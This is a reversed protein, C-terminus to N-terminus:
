KGILMKRTASFDRATLTYFYIGSAVPEGFANRGDWYAARSRDTYYGARQYGLDLQRVLAGNIDYISIRVDTDNALRYPIWTEPNFPNPYNPLLVTEKPTLVALVQELFLIGRQSTADTLDLEQAHALWQEVDATTLMALTQPDSSPAAANGFAGAVLVLDLINVIGDGNVDASLDTGEDGLVSAVLVLDLINVVDDRNVDQPIPPLEAFASVTQKEKIGTVSVTVTNTGLNPGLTLISEARGNNDTTATTVSLTGGGSSVSFIVQVSPLPEGSRDRVEVVLPKALAEGIVGKQDFGTIIWFALPIRIGEASFTQQEQIKTVSVTVTNTGPHPGLTLSNEAQGNANTTATTASLMGDGAVVAFSVTVGESPADYQDRVEVIFAEALMEGTSGSQNNGSVILLVTPTPPPLSAEANFVVTRSIGEVSVTVTNTGPDSGLSLTSAANGNADTMEMESSLSGGGVSVAFTVTVGETPADYQDRVEVVFSNALTEGTLGSQDGGSVISLHTPTPLPLVAEADFVETRSIGEVSVEVSNTGPDSGLTLTSQALGNADTTATTVNLSGGGENVSYTVTVGQMTGDYQDRVEVVFPNTLAEGTLGSQDGGSVISLITPMPPPLAAKANFVATQSIGEVSVTVMNTGPNDGLTLTSETRGDANTLAIEPQLIGDGATVTFTVSVGESVSGNEDRVEVVFPNALAEGTLGSQNDGSVISLVTPMPPPLVAEANFVETRSIGEVSVEVSNRGPDGGLTLTSTARGDVNTTVHEVTSQKNLRGEGITVTFTVQVGQVPNDYWNRVEVVLPHALESGLTGQQADGSVKVLKRTSEAVDWFEVTGDTSGSALLPSVPSFSVSWISSSGEFSAIKEQTVVDWLNVTGDLEGTALLAGDPSFSISRITSRGVFSAIEEFNVVDWLKATGDFSATAFLAGDPPSFSVSTIGRPHASFSTVDERTAVEWLKVAGSLRTAGGSVLLTGDPPSFSVSVVSPAPLAGIEERTAVDWLKVTGDSRGAFSLQMQGGRSLAPSSGSAILSGNPSFSVDLVPYNHKELTAITEQATVDWLKVTGDFSGSALLNSNPSFSVSTVSDTHGRLTAIKQETAVDWLEVINNASAAALLNGNPSFSVSWIGGAVIDMNVRPNQRQLTQLPSKDAIPNGDLYLWELNVLGSLATVDSIQNGQLRLSTLRTLGALPSIDSIENGSLDLITLNTLGALPSIDSIQNGSLSTATLQTLGTLASIDSIERPGHEATSWIALDRLQTAYELGTLDKITTVGQPRQNVYLTLGVLQEMAQQALPEDPPLGLTHRVLIRLSPDPMWQDEPDETPAPAPFIPFNIDIEVNPNKRLLSRLPATDAIWNGELYLGELNELGALASVDSIENDRLNLATLNTLGALPSLDSITNGNLRLDTLNALGALPSIDRIENRSINLWTLQTLGALPGLDSISNFTLWLETLNTLGALPSIDRIENYYIWLKTLNTLGALPSIDRIENAFLLLATLDTAHELGTLNKLSRQSGNLETLRQLAQQTLPEDPALGLADRVVKRLNPDPMWTAANQASAIHLWGGLGVTILFIGLIRKM